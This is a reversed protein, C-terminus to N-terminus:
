SLLNSWITTSCYTRDFIFSNFFRIRVSSMFLAFSIVVFYILFFEFMSCQHHLWTLTLKSIFSIACVVFFYIMFCIIFNCRLGRYRSTSEFCTFFCYSILLDYILNLKISNSFLCQKIRFILDIYHLYSIIIALSIQWRTWLSCTGRLIKSNDTEVSWDVM